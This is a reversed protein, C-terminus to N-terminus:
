KYGERVQRQRRLKEERIFRCVTNVSVGLFDAIERNKKGAQVLRWVTKIRRQRIYTKVAHRRRSILHEVYIANFDHPAALSALFARKTDQAPRDRRYTRYFQIALVRHLERREKLGEKQRTAAKEATGVPEGSNGPVPTEPTENRSPAINRSKDLDQLSRILNPYGKLIRGVSQPTTRPRLLTAIERNSKGLFHLRIVQADRRARIQEKRRQEYQKHIATLASVPIGFHDAFQRVLATRSKGVANKSRLERDLKRALADWSKRRQLGDCESLTLARQRQENNAREQDLISKVQAITSPGHEVILAAVEWPLELTVTVLGASITVNRKM